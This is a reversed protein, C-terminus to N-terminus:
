FAFWGNIRSGNGQLRASRQVGPETDDDYRRADSSFGRCATVVILFRVLADYVRGPGRKTWGKGCRFGSETAVRCIFSNHLM